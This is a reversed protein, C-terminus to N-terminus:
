GTALSELRAYEAATQQAPTEIGAPGLLAPDTGELLVINVPISVEGQLPPQGTASRDYELTLTVNDVLLGNSDIDQTGTGAVVHDNVALDELVTAIAGLSEGGKNANWVELPISYAFGINHPLTSCVVYEADQVTTASLVQITRYSTIVSYNAM